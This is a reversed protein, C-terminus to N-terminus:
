EKYLKLIGPETGSAGTVVATLGIKKAEITTIGDKITERGIYLNRNQKDFGLEGDKLIGNVPKGSGRKITFINM